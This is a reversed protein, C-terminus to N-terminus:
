FARTKEETDTNGTEVTKTARRYDVSFQFATVKKRHQRKKEKGLFLTESTIDTHTHKHPPPPPTQKTIITLSIKQLIIRVSTLRHAVVSAATSDRLQTEVAPSM